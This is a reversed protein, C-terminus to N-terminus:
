IGMAQAFAQWSLDLKEPLRYRNKAVYAPTGQTYIVRSGSTTARTRKANFGKDEKVTYAEQDAFLIIDAFEEAIAAARKQLKLAHSDYAEMLPDEIRIIQSHATMVTAMGLNDRLWTVSDFFERWYKLAEVYGRGYGADEISSWRKNSGILNNQDVAEQWILPELWDLSDIVLTKYDHKESALASISGMVDAFSTAKDFTMVELDGLGDETQIVIPAPASTAFTTKGIGAGGYIIVRPPKAINKKLDSLSQAM